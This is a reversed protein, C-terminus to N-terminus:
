SKAQNWPMRAMLMGMACTDTIGAFMLGAGVFASLGYFGAHIQWGLVVGLVILAGAVIRVQRELSMAKRGKVVQFGAKECAVTGGEVSIVNDCGIALLKQCAMESRKGSKCIFYLPKASNGNRGEILERPNLRDLPVNRAIEVHLEGFEAPTRVDILELNSDQKQLRLFEDATITKIAM